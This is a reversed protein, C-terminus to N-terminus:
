PAPSLGTLWHYAYPSVVFGDGAYDSPAGSIEEVVRDSPEGLEGWAVWADRESFNYVQVVDGAAHRRGVVLIAPDSGASVASEVAGHLGPLRKRAALISRLGSYVSEEITGAQNRLEARDWPMSPRHMWRNDGARGEVGLYSYDNRLGLEDGMYIIPLGGFGIVFAYACLLRSVALRLDATWIETSQGPQADLASEIGALSAASGSTRRDGTGPNSQFNSGTAFSDPFAGSYFDALFSRHAPGSLGLSSADRDDIAWGIDDHCRLYTAWATTIAKPRMSSLAKEALRGDRTALTSWAQVMLSNHYALDSVKGARDGRGLYDTVIEPAVIAEAKFITAPAVIRTMARLAQTIAHVEPQNQCDTGIRKWIFAIADLRLCDVGRNALSLVISAFEMFVDPNSWDLDWQWSNFTTWIWGDAESDFTFNGPASAPFVEPLSREYRDPMERNDFIHFYRRYREAGERAAAAWRHERAVHNLVLDLTLSIGAAHLAGALNELDSMTGLDPRVQDYDAVAYGGDNPAPRPLLLPMLHLYTVGLENLYGIRESIGALTGAFLETYAAYGVESERQFWDPRLLRQTDRHRLEPRRAKLADAMLAEVREVLGTDGYVALLADRLDPLWRQRREELWSSVFLRVEWGARYRKCVSPLSTFDNAMVIRSM